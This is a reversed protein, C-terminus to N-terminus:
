PCVVKFEDKQSLLDIVANAKLMFANGIVPFPIDIITVAFPGFVCPTGKLQISDITGRKITVSVGIALMRSATSRINVGLSSAMKTPIVIGTAGTDVLAPRVVERDGNRFVFPLVIRRDGAAAQQRLQKMCSFFVGRKAFEIKAGVAKMFDMGVLMDTTLEAIATVPMPSVACNEGIIEMKDLIVRVSQHTGKAGRVISAAIMKEIPVGLRKLVRFSVITRDTGTDLTGRVVIKKDDYTLRVPMVVAVRRPTRRLAEGIM